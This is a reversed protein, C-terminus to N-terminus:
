KCFAEITGLSDGTMNKNEYDYYYYTQPFINNKNGETVRYLIAHCSRYTYRYFHALAEDETDHSKQWFTKGEEASITLIQFKNM